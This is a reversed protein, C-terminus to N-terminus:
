TEDRALREYMAALARELNVQDEAQLRRLSQALRRGEPHSTALETLFREIIRESISSQV